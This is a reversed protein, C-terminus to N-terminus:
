SITCDFSLCDRHKAAKIDDFTVESLTALSSLLLKHADVSNEQVHATMWAEWEDVVFTVSDPVQPAFKDYASLVVWATEMRLAQMHLVSSNNSLRYFLARYLNRFPLDEASQWLTADFPLSCM